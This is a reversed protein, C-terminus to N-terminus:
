YLFSFCITVVCLVAMVGLWFMCHSDLAPNETTYIRGMDKNSM